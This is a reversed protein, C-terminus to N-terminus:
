QVVVAEIGIRRASVYVSAAPVLRDDHLRYLALLTDATTRWGFGGHGMRALYIQGDELRVPFTVQDAFATYPTDLSVGFTPLDAPQKDAAVIEAMRRYGAADEENAIVGAGLSEATEERRLRMALIEATRILPVCDVGDCFAHTPEDTVSYDVTVTCPPQFAQDHLGAISVTSQAISNSFAGSQEIWLAPTGDITVAALASLACLGTPDPSGPLGIEHAPGDPPVAVTMATHCGLTGDVRDLLWIDSDGLRMAESPPLDRLRRALDSEAAHELVLADAISQGPKALGKEGPRVVGAAVLEALPTQERLPGVAVGSWIHHAVTQCLDTQANAASAVTLVLLSVALRKM